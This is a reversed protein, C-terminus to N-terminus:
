NTYWVYEQIKEIGIEENLIDQELFIPKDWIIFSFIWRMGEVPKPAKVMVMKDRKGSRKSTITNAYEEM